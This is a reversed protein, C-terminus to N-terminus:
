SQSISGTPSDTPFAREADFGKLINALAAEAPEGNSQSIARAAHRAIDMLVLGWCASNEFASPALTVTVGSGTWVRLIEIATQDTNVNTPIPLETPRSRVM